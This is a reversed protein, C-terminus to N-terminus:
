EVEEFGRISVVMKLPLRFTPGGIDAIFLDDLPNIVLTTKEIDDPHDIGVLIGEKSYNGLKGNVFRAFRVDVPRGMMERYLFTVAERHFEMAKEYTGMM